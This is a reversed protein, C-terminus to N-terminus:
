CTEGNFPTDQSQSHIGLQGVPAIRHSDKRKCHLDRTIQRPPPSAKKRM